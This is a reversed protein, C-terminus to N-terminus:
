KPSSALRASREEDDEHGDYVADHFWAALLVTERAPDDADMLDDVHHLVESLHRLDHYGRAEDGYAAELRSRLDDGLWAPWFQALDSM